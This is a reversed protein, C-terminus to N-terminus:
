VNKRECIREYVKLARRMGTLAAARQRLRAYRVETAAVQEQVWNPESKFPSAPYAFDKGKRLYTSYVQKASGDGKSVYRNRYWEASFTGNRFVVRTGIRCFSDWGEFDDRSAIVVAWFIDSERSAEAVISHLEIDILRLQESVFNATSSSFNEASLSWRLQEKEEGRGIYNKYDISSRSM